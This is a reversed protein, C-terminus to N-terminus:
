APYGTIARIRRYLPRLRPYLQSYVERYLADYTQQAAANPVFTRGSRCMAAVARAYDHYLGLGMALNIAAGLASTEYLEPREIPTGFVDATIQMAADSQSGGGAAIIRQLPFGLKREIQERGARLSYALGELIARYFHARTHVDGFGIVAGKAEPGPETVGPSWYPQLTLGMSGPPVSKLLEDFLSEVPVGLERAKAQERHAFERKFWAVMWFGRYTQIETNWAGPLAAPYAPLLRQVELYRAQTTNITATTGFSLQAVDAGLAGSGLVECAKDAAAAVITLGAPLGLAEAAAAQLTGLKGGPPVLRPLQERRVALARWKFDSPAAWDLRKYDFPVFGVQAGSSDVWEGTLRHLLWGSIFVFKDTRRWREPEHQALWNAESETQFHRMLGGAGALAFATNWLPGLPPLQTAKRQDLWVIAPRLPRGSEEACVVTSRLTTLALGSIQAPRVENQAWLERCATAVGNWYVQADQEAWGPQTSVYAPELPVQAKALLRGQGDFVIARVSQTGVDIALLRASTM